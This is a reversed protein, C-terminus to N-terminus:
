NRKKRRRALFGLGMLGGGLLLFTTPEPVVGPQFSGDTRTYFDVPFNPAVGFESIINTGAFDAAELVNNNGDVLGLAINPLTYTSFDIGDVDFWYGPAFGNILKALNASFQIDIQGDIGAPTNLDLDGTGYDLLFSAIHIGDDAGFFDTASAFGFDMTTDIYIDLTGTLFDFNQVSGVATTNVGIATFVATLEYNFNLFTTTVPIVSGGNQFATAAFAGIESFAVGPAPVAANQVLSTGLLTIEDIPQFVSTLGTGLPNFQWDHLSLTAASASGAIGLLLFIGLLFGLM